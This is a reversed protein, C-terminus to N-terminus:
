LKKCVTNLNLFLKNDRNEHTRDSSKKYTTHPLLAILHSVDQNMLKMGSLM